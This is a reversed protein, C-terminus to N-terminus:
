IIDSAEVVGFTWQVSSYKPGIRHRIEYRETCFCIKRPSMVRTSSSPCSMFSEEQDANKLNTDFNRGRPNKGNVICIQYREPSQRDNMMPKVRPYLGVTTLIYLITTPNDCKQKQFPQKECTSGSSMPAYIPTSYLPETIRM